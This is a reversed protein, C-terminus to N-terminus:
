FFFFFWCRFVKLSGLETHKCCWGEFDLWPGGGDGEGQRPVRVNLKESLLKLLLTQLHQSSVGSTGAPKQRTSSRSGPAVCGTSRHAGDMHQQSVPVLWNMCVCNAVSILHRDSICRCLSNRWFFYLLLFVQWTLFCSCDKDQQHKHTHMRANYFLHFYCFFFIFVVSWKAAMNEHVLSLYCYLLKEWIHNRFLVKM